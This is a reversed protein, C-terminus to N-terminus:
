NLLPSAALAAVRGADEPKRPQHSAALKAARAFLHNDNLRSVSAASADVRQRGILKSVGRLALYLASLTPFAEEQSPKPAAAVFAAGGINTSGRVM